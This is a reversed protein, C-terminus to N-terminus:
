RFGAFDCGVSWVRGGGDHCCCVLDWLRRWGREELDVEAQTRRRGGEDLQCLLGEVWEERRRLAIESDFGRIFLRLISYWCVDRNM